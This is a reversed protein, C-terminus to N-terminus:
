QVLAKAEIKAELSKALELLKKINEAQEKESSM